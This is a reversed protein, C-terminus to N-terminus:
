REGLSRSFQATIPALFYSILRRKGTIADVSGTMGPRLVLRGSPSPLSDTDPKLRVIFGWRGSTGMEIADAAIDTVTAMVAGFREAPYADLRIRAKQGVELFGSDENSFLAELELKSDQPVIQMLDQGPQVVGGITSVKLQEVTGSVPAALSAAAVREDLTRREQRLAALRSAIEDCRQLAKNRSTSFLGARETELVSAEADTQAIQSQIVSRESKLEDYVSRVKLYAERSSIGNAMLKEAALLREQQVALAADTQVIKGKLVDLAKRNVEIRADARAVDDAFSRLEAALMRAQTAQLGKDDVNERLSALGPTDRSGFVGERMQLIGSLFAARRVNERKLRSEEEILRMREARAATADLTILLDGREVKAGDRVLIRTISGAYEAQVTQVRDLPVLRVTGRATIEVHMVCAAILMVFFVAVSLLATAHLTPSSLGPEDHIRM